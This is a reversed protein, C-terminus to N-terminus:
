PRDGGSGTPEDAAILEDEDFAFLGSSRHTDDFEVVWDHGNDPRRVIGTRGEVQEMVVPLVPADPLVRVRDGPKM